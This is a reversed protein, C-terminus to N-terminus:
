QYAYLRASGTMNAVEMVVTTSTPIIMMSPLASFHYDWTAIGWRGTGGSKADNSGSVCRLSMLGSNNSPISFSIILPKGVVLGTISWFGNATRISVQSVTGDSTNETVVSGPVFTSADGAIIVQPIAVVTLIFVLVAFKINRVAKM